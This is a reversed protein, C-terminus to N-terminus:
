NPKSPFIPHTLRENFESFIKPFPTKETEFNILQIYTNLDKFSIKKEIITKFNDESVEKYINSWGSHLDTELLLLKHKYNYHILFRYKYSVLEFDDRVDKQKLYLQFVQNLGYIQAQEYSLNADDLILYTPENKCSFCIILIYILLKRM